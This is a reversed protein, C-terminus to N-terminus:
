QSGGRSMGGVGPWTGGGAKVERDSLRRTERRTRRGAGRCQEAGAGAVTRPATGAGCQESGMGSSQESGMGWSTHIVCPGMAGRLGRPQAGPPGPFPAAPQHRRGPPRGPADLVAQAADRGGGGARRAAARQAAAGGPPAGAGGVAAAAGPGVAGGVLQLLAVAAAPGAGQAAQGAQAAQRAAMYAKAGSPAWGVRSSPRPGSQACTGLRAAHPKGVAPRHSALFPWARPRAARGQRGLPRAGPRPADPTSSRPASSPRPSRTDWGFRAAATKGMTRGRSRRTIQHYPQSGDSRRKQPRM